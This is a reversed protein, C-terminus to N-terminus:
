TGSGDARAHPIIGRSLAGLFDMGAVRAIGRAEAIM